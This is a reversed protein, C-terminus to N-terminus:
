VWWPWQSVTPTPVGGCGLLLEVEDGFRVFLQGGRGETIPKIRGVISRQQRDGQGMGSLEVFCTHQGLRREGQLAFDVLALRIVLHV